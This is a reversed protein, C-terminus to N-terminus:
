NTVEDHKLLVGLSYDPLREKPEPGLGGDEALLLALGLAIVRDGHAERAGSAESRLRGPGIGGEEYVVYDGLEVLSEESPVIIEGRSLVTSLRGLMARKSRRTSNWGVRKTRREDSTGVIREKFVHRWGAREVDHQMSAGPGNIEWGLVTPRRGKFVYKIVRVLEAALDHGGTFADAYEAVVKMDRVDIICAAANAAGTGYAPDVGCVYESAPDPEDFVRWSGSPCDLLEGDSYMCRRPVTVYQQQRDVARPTFFREGGATEEAFVNIALDIRDRRKVQEGLWPTWTYETGAVGTVEGDVDDRQKAGRGKEPHDTYLMEVLAPAGTARGQSVLTAYHTGPGVPTSVAVRCSTCDAASRWAAEANDLAAYEDFIVMNRRGGRGIHATSAQGVITAASHPHRLVMHGRCKGTGKGFDNPMAPLMWVPLTNVIYDIKWFLTDPDGTRDVLDEVRSVLMVQWDRMMWGWVSLACVLWSAGMDRSKRLVADHGDEVASVLTSIAQEQIPWPDFPIDPLSAPRDVGKEDVDRVHNTWSCYRLWAIPDARFVEILDARDQGEARLVHERATALSQETSPVIQEGATSYIWAM